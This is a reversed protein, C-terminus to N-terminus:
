KVSMKAKLEEFWNLVVRIENPGEANGPRLSILFRQGDPSIGLMRPIALDLDRLVKRPKGVTPRGAHYTVDVAVLDDDVDMYFLERGSPSWLPAFGDGVSVPIRDADVNPFPRLFVNSRGSADTTYAMWKGDPSVLGNQDFGPAVILPSVQPAPGLTLLHIDMGGGAETTLLIQKGDPTWSSPVQRATSRTLREPAGVGSAAMRFVGAEAPGAGTGWFFIEKGNPSWV